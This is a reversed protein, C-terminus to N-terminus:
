PADLVGALRDGAFLLTVRGTGAYTVERAGALAESTLGWLQPLGPFRSPPAGARLEALLPNTAEPQARPPMPGAAVAGLRAQLETVAGDVYADSPEPEAELQSLAASATAHDARAHAWATTLRYRTWDVLLKLRLRDGHSAADFLAAAREQLSPAASPAAARAAAHAHSSACGGGLVLLALGLARM